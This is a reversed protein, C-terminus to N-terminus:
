KGTYIFDVKIISEKKYDIEKLNYTENEFTWLFTRQSAREAFKKYINEDNDFDNISFKNNQNLFYKKEEFQSTIFNEADEKYKPNLEGVVREKRRKRWHEKDETIIEKTRKFEEEYARAPSETNNEIYEKILKIANKQNNASVTISLDDGFSNSQTFIFYKM